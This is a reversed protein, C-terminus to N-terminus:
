YFDLNPDSLLPIMHKEKVTVHKTVRVQNQHNQLVHTLLDHSKDRSRLVLGKPSALLILIINHSRLVLAEAELELSLSLLLTNSRCIKSVHKTVATGRLYNLQLHELTTKLQLLKMM